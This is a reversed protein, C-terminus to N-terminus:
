NLECMLLDLSDLWSIVPFQAIGLRGGFRKLLQNPRSDRGIDLRRIGHRKM